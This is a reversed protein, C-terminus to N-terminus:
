LLHKHAGVASKKIVELGLHSECISREAMTQTRRNNAPPVHNARQHIEFFEVQVSETNMVQLKGILSM